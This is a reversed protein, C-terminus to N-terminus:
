IARRKEQDKAYATTLSGALLLIGITVCAAIKANMARNNRIFLVVM